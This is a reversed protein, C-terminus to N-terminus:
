VKIDKLNMHNPENLCPKFIVTFSFCSQNLVLALAQALNTSM